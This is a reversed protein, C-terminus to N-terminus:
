QCRTNDILWPKFLDIQYSDLALDWFIRYYGMRISCDCGIIKGVEFLRIRCRRDLGDLDLDYYMM